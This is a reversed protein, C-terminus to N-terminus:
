RNGSRAGRSRVTAFRRGVRRTAPRASRLSIPHRRSLLAWRHGGGSVRVSRTQRANRERNPRRARVSMPLHSSTESFTRLSRTRFHRRLRRSLGRCSWRAWWKAIYASFVDSRPPPHCCDTPSQCPRASARHGPDRCRAAKSFHHHEAVAVFASLKSFHNNQM